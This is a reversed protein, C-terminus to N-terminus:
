ENENKVEVWFHTAHSFCKYRVKVRHNPSCQRWGVNEDSEEALRQGNPTSYVTGVEGIGSSTTTEDCQYDKKM